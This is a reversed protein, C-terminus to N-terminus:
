LSQKKIQITSFEGSMVQTFVGFKQSMAAGEFPLCITKKEAISLKTLPAAPCATCFIFRYEAKVLFCAQNQSAAIWLKAAFLCSFIRFLFYSVM